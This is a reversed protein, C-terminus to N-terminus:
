RDFEILYCQLRWLRRPLETFLDVPQALVRTLERCGYMLQGVLEMRGFQLMESEHVGNLTQTILHRSLFTDLDLEAM